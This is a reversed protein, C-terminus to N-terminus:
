KEPRRFREGIPFDSDRQHHTRAIRAAGGLTQGATNTVGGVIRATANVAGVTNGVGGLLGNSGSGSPVGDSSNPLKGLVESSMSVGVSPDANALTFSILAGGTAEKLAIGSSRKTQIKLNDLQNQVTEIRRYAV